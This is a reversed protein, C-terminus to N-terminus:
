VGFRPISGRADAHCASINGVVGYRLSPVTPFAAKYCFYPYNRGFHEIKAGTLPNVAWVELFVAIQRKELLWSKRISNLYDFGVNPIISSTIIIFPRVISLAEFVFFFYFAFFYINISSPANIKIKKGSRCNEIVLVVKDFTGRWVTMGRHFCRM